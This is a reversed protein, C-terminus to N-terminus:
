KTIIAMLSNDLHNVDHISFIEKVVFIKSLLHRLSDQTYKFTHEDIEEPGMCNDPVTVIGLGGVKLVRYTERLFYKRRLIHELVESVIVGDFSDDDLELKPISGKIVNIKLESILSLAYDSHEYGWLNSFGRNKLYRLLSGTGFGIDLLRDNKQFYSAILENKTPWDFKPNSWNERLADNWFKESNGFDPFNNISYYVRPLYKALAIKFKWPFKM